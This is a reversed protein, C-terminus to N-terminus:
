AGTKQNGANLQNKLSNNESELREIEKFALNLSKELQEIKRKMENENLPNINTLTEEKLLEIDDTLMDGEGTLIWNINWNPFAKKIKEISPRRLSDGIKDVYGNGLDAKKCFQNANLGEGSMLFMLRDKLNM